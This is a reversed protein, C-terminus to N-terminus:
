WIPCSHSVPWWKDPRYYVTLCVTYTRYTYQIWRTRGDTQGDTRTQLRCPKQLMLWTQKPIEIEFKMHINITAMPLLRTMKLSTVKMIAAQRGFQIKPRWVRVKRQSQFDAAFRLPVINITYPYSDTSKWCRLKWFSRRAAMNSKETEPPPMTEPTYTLNAKFNWKWVQHMNVTTMPLLRNIKLSTM